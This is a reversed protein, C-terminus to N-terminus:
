NLLSLSNPSAVRNSSMHGVNELDGITVCKPQDGSIVAASAAFARMMWGESEERVGDEKEGYEFGVGRWPRRASCM